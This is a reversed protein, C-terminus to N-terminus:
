SRSIAPKFVVQRRPHGVILRPRALCARIEAHSDCCRVRGTSAPVAIWPVLPTNPRRVCVAHRSLAAYDSREVQITAPVSRLSGRASRDRPFTSRRRLRQQAAASGHHRAVRHAPMKSAAKTTSTIIIGDPTASITGNRFGRHWGLTDEVVQWAPLVPTAVLGNDGAAGFAQRAVTHHNRTRVDSRATTTM